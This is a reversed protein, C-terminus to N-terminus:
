SGVEAPDLTLAANILSLHTLGQPLNGLFEGTVPDVEEAFLGVDSGTGVLRDMLEVAEARRGHLALAEALWFSCTLFAGEQGALGDEGSYRFVFPGHALERRVAEVTHYLREDGPPGYGFITGLLVSADLEDSGSHRVYSAKTDSWCNTEIFERIAAGTDAWRAAHKAPLHGAQALQCAREVAIVCMMKSQTLHQPQSRVEWLGADPETWIRCVLDATEALRHAIDADIPRGSRAYLWAAQLLDGYTDLQLQGAAANGVRVPVSDRYGRLALAQEPTRAGGDLRYLVRLRPHTLQSAQMLWWFYADAEAACGLRLLANLVLASDRVWCFRYDWNRAGGITEPLSTTAAAAIAGSPAHVLLKLALSSRVVEAAWPGAAQLRASWSRWMAATAALRAEVQSQAPLILPEQHAAVLAFLGQHGPSAEFRGSISGRSVEPEGGSWSCLALADNGCTAVPVGARRGLRFRKAGFDFGPNLEWSM